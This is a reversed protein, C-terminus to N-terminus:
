NLKLLRYIFEKISRIWGFDTFFELLIAGAVTVVIFAIVTYVIHSTKIFIWSIIRKPWWKGKAKESNNIGSQQTTNNLYDVCYQVIEPWSVSEIDTISFERQLFVKVKTITIFDDKVKPAIAQKIAGFESPMLLRHREIINPNTNCITGEKISYGNGFMDYVLKKFPYKPLFPKDPQQYIAYELPM